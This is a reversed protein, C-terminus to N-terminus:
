RRRALRKVQESACNSPSEVRFYAGAANMEAKRLQLQNLLNVLTLERQEPAIALARAGGRPPLIRVCYTGGEAHGARENEARVWQMGSPFRASALVNRLDWARGRFEEESFGNQGPTEYHEVKVTFEEENADARALPMPPLLLLTALILFKM